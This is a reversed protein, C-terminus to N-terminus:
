NLASDGYDHLLLLKLVSILEEVEGEGLEVPDCFKSVIKIMVAGGREAWLVLEGGSLEYIKPEITM